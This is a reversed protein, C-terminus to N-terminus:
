RKGAWLALFTDCHAVELTVLREFTIGPDSIGTVTFSQDDLALGSPRPKPAVSLRGINRLGIPRLRWAPDWPNRYPFAM